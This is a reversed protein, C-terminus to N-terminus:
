KILKEARILKGDDTIGEVIIKYAKCTDNNYFSIQIKQKDGNTTIIPEWFLTTRNDSGFSALAQNSYNPMYCNELATYGIVSRMQVMGQSSSGKGLATYIAIVGNPNGLFPPYFAKIYVVDQMNVFMLDQLETRVQDVYFVPTDGRWIVKTGTILNEGPSVRFGPIKTQLYMLIDIVNKAFPDNAVDINFSNVSRFEASTYKKDLQETSLTRNGLIKVDNLVRTDVMTKQTSQYALNMSDYNVGGLSILKTANTDIRMFQPNPMRNQLFDIKIPRLLRDETPPYKYTVKLTDFLIIDPKNFYGDESIPLACYFPITDTKSKLAFLMKYGRNKYTKDKIQGSFYLYSTDPLVKSSKNITKLTPETLMLLDLGRKTKEANGTFYDLKTKNKLQGDLMAGSIINVSSDTSFNADVVSISINAKVSDPVEIELENKARKSFSITQPVIKPEIIQNAINNFINREAVIKGDIDLVLLRLVGFPFSETPIIGNATAENKLDITNKFIIENNSLGVFTLQKLSEAAGISRSLMFSCKRGAYANNVVLLVGEPKINNLKESYKNGAEDTYRITYSKNPEIFLDFLGIGDYEANIQKIENGENDVVSGSVNVAKNFQNVAKFAIRNLMNAILSGGEPTLILKTNLTKSVGTNVKKPQFIPLIKYYVSSSDLQYMYKTYAQVHLYTDIYQKPIAVQGKTIGNAIPFVQHSIILGKENAVDIYLNRSASANMGNSFVYAKVWVTDGPLYISKDFSLYCTETKPVQTLKNLVSDIKSQQAFVLDANFLLSSFVIFFLYTHRLAANLNAKFLKMFINKLYHRCIIFFCVVIRFNSVIM